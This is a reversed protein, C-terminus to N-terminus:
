KVLVECSAFGPSRQRGWNRDRIISTRWDKSWQKRNAEPVSAQYAPDDVMSERVDARLFRYIVNLQEVTALVEATPSDDTRAIRDAYHTNWANVLLQQKDVLLNYLMAQLSSDDVFQQSTAKNYASLKTSTVVPTLTAMSGGSVSVTTSALTYGTGPNTIKVSLIAGAGDVNVYGSAGSGPNTM